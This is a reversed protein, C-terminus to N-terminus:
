STGQETEEPPGYQEVVRKFISAAVEKGRTGAFIIKTKYKMELEVIRKLLFWNSVRLDKWKDKPIGSGLPFNIVDEMTFELIIFPHRFKQLRKLERDFRDQVVNKVFEGTNAKREIIVINEYGAITYDGTKLTDVVMGLCNKGASFTWGLQKERTDKIVTYGPM